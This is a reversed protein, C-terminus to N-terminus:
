KIKKWKCVREGCGDERSLELYDSLMRKEVMAAKAVESTTTEAWVGSRDWTGLQATHAEKEYAAGLCYVSMRGLNGAENSGNGGRAATDGVDRALAGSALGGNGAGDGRTHRGCARSLVLGTHGLCDKEKGQWCALGAVARAGTRAPMQWAAPIEMETGALAAAVEDPALEMAAEALLAM